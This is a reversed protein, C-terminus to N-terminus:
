TDLLDEKSQYQELNKCDFCDLSFSPFPIDQTKSTGIIEEQLKDFLGNLDEYLDGMLTHINIDPIYWHILHIISSIESLIIGFNKTNDIEPQSSRDVSVQTIIVEKM